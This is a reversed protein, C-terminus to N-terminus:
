ENVVVETQKLWLELHEVRGTEQNKGIDAGKIEYYFNTTTDKVVYSNTLKQSIITPLQEPRVYLLIDCDEYSANAGAQRVIDNGEEVIADLTYSKGLETGIEAGYQAEFLVFRDFEIGNPFASFVDM